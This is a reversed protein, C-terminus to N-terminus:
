GTDNIEETRFCGNDCWGNDRLSYNHCKPCKKFGASKSDVVVPFMYSDELDKPDYGMEEYKM